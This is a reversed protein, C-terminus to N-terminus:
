YRLHLDYIQIEDIQIDYIKYISMLISHLAYLFYVLNPLYRLHVDYIQIDNMPIDYIYPTHTTVSQM